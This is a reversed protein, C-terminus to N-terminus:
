LYRSLLTRATLCQRLEYIMWVLPQHWKNGNVVLRVLVTGDGEDRNQETTNQGLELELRSFRLRPLCVAVSGPTTAPLPMRQFVVSVVHPWCARLVRHAHAHRARRAHAVAGRRRRRPRRARHRRRPLRRHRVEEARQRGHQPEDRQRQEGQGAGVPLQGAAALLRVVVVVRFALGAGARARLGPGAVSLGCRGALAGPLTPPLVRHDDHGAVLPRREEGRWRRRAPARVAGTADADAHVGARAVGLVAVLRPAHLAPRPRPRSARGVALALRPPGLLTTCTTARYSYDTLSSLEKKKAHSHTHRRETRRLGCTIPRRDLWWSRCRVGVQNQSPFFLLCAAARTSGRAYM